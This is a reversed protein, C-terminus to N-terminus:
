DEDEEEVLDKECEKELFDWLEEDPKLDEEDICIM